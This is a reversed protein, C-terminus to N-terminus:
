FGIGEKRGTLRMNIEERAQDIQGFAENIVIMIMEELMEKDDKNLANDDIKIEKITKNGLVTVKVAGGKEVVFEQDNLANQAKQLERQLKQAQMLM